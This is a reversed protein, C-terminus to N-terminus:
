VGAPLKDHCARATFWSEVWGRGIDVWSAAIAHHRNLTRGLDRYTVGHLLYYYALAEAENKRTRYLASIARDVEAAEEETIMCEPPRESFREPQMKTYPEISPWMLSIGRNEYAWRGWNILLWETTNQNLSM